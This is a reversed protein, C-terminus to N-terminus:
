PNANCWKLTLHLNPIHDPHAFVYPKKAKQMYKVEWDVGVSDKWGPIKIVVLVDAWDLFRRDQNLWFTHTFLEKSQFNHIPHSHTIPSFVIYGELMYNGAIKTIKRYRLWRVIRWPSNYPCALYVKIAKEKM